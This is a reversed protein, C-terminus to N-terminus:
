AYLSFNVPFLFLCILYCMQSSLVEMLVPLLIFALSDAVSLFVMNIDAAQSLITSVCFFYPQPLHFIVPIGKPYIKLDFTNFPYQNKGRKM